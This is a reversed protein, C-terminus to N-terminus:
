QLVKIAEIRSDSKIPVAMVLVQEDKEPNIDLYVTDFGFLSKRVPDDKSLTVTSGDSYRVLGDRTMIGIESFGTTNVYNKIIPEQLNWNMSRIDEHHAIVDLTIRQIELQSYVLDTSVDALDVLNKETELTLSQKASLTSITSLTVIAVTVLVSFYLLLKGKIGYLRFARLDMKKM